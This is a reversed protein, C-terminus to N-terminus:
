GSKQRQKDDAIQIVLERAQVSADYIKQANDLLEPRLQFDEVLLEAAGTVAILPSLADHKWILLQKPDAPVATELFASNDAYTRVIELLKRQEENWSDDVAAALAAAWRAIDGLIQQVPFFPHDTMTRATHALMVMM